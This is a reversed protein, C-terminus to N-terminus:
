AARYRCRLPRCCTPMGVFRAARIRTTGRSPDIPQALLAMGRGSTPHTRFPIPHIPHSTTTRIPRSNDRPHM